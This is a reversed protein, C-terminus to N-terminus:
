GIPWPFEKQDSMFFVSLLRPELEPIVSTSKLPLIPECREEKAYLVSAGRSPALGGDLDLDVYPVVM